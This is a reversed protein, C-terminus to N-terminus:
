IWIPDINPVSRATCSIIYLSESLRYRTRCVSFFMDSIRSLNLRLYLYTFVSRWTDKTQGQPLLIHYTVSVVSFYKWVFTKEIQVWWLHRLPKTLYFFNWFDSFFESTPPHTFGWSPNYINKKFTKKTNKQTTKMNGFTEFFFFHIPPHTTPTQNERIKPNKKVQCCGESLKRRKM